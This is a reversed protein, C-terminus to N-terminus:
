SREDPVTPLVTITTARHVHLLSVDHNGPVLIIHDRSGGFFMDALAVLFDYAEDYQVELLRDADKEKPDVGYVIDGSVVAITPSEISGDGTYRDRDRRLSEILTTTSIRSESDRHLDSIHLITFSM